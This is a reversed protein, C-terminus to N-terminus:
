KKSRVPDEIIQYYPLIRTYKAVRRIDRSGDRDWWIDLYASRPEGPGVPEFTMGLDCSYEVDGSEKFPPAADKSPKKVYAERPLESVALFVCNYQERAEEFFKLWADISGRRDLKELQPLKQLSDVVMIFTDDPPIIAGADQLWETVAERDVGGKSAKYCFRKGKGGSIWRIAKDHRAQEIPTLGRHYEASALKAMRWALRRIFRKAGNEMDWYLCWAGKEVMSQVIHQAWLSKGEKPRAGLVVLSPVAFGGAPCGPETLAADLLTWGTSVREVPTSIYGVLRESQSALTDSSFTNERQVKPV